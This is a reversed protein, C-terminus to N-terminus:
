ATTLVQDENKALNKIWYGKRYRSLGFLGKPIDTIQILLFMITVPWNTFRSMVFAIPVAVVWMYVSDMLLTSKTDGGSRLTFYLAVNFSYVPIFLANIRINFQAIRKTEEAVKYIDLVFFSLIFLLIGMCAAFFVAFAILKKANDRAEELENRGLTNGVLVAIGTAVGGFTVFVLQSIAGTINQAAFAYEGRMSYAQMFMTQGSSWLAENLMLPLAMAFISTLVKKDIKLVDKLKTDFVIGKRKLLVLSLIFELTRAIVTAYAAGIIGLKPFGFLGFILLANLVTNTIIAAISIFMLPKTIGMDRFTNVIAITLVWPLIGFRIIKLYAMANDITVPNTTFFGILTRGFLTFIVFSVLFVTLATMIKFRFTQKLKEFDKSGFYQASYIGAGGIAGFTILMMVFYLQNVTSVSVIASEELSGVMVNDVLQVSSTILQQAVIPLAVTFLSKYFKKDGILSRLNM